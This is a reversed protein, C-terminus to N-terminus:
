SMQAIIMLAMLNFCVDPILGFCILFKLFEHKCKLFNLCKEIILNGVIMIIIGLFYGFPVGFRLTSFPNIERVFGFHLLIVTNWFNFTVM